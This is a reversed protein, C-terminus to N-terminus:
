DCWEIYGLRNVVRSCRPAKWTDVGINLKGGCTRYQEGVKHSPRVKRRVAIFLGTTMIVNIGVNLIGM